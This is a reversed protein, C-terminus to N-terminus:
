LFAGAIGGLSGVLGGIMETHFAKDQASMQMDEFALKANTQLRDMEYMSNLESTTGMQDSQMSAKARKRNFDAMRLAKEEAARIRSLQDNAEFRAAGKQGLEALTVQDMANNTFSSRGLGRSAMAAGVQMRGEDGAETAEGLMQQLRAEVADAAEPSAGLLRKRLEAEASSADSIMNDREGSLEVWRNSAQVKSQRVEDIAADMDDSNFDAFKRRLLSGEDNLGM